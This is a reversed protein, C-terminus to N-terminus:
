FYGGYHGYLLLNGLLCVGEDVFWGCLLLVLVIDVNVITVRVNTALQHLLEPIIMDDLRIGIEYQARSALFIGRSELWLYM